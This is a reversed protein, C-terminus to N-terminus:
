ILFLESVNRKANERIFLTFGHFIWGQASHSWIFLTIRKLLKVQQTVTLKYVRSFLLKIQGGTFLNLLHTIWPKAESNVGLQKKMNEIVWTYVQYM